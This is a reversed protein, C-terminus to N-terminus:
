ISRRMTQTFSLSLTLRRFQIMALNKSMTDVSSHWTVKLGHKRFQSRWELAVHQDRKRPWNSKDKQKSSIALILCLFPSRPVRVMLPPVLIQDVTTEPNLLTVAVM